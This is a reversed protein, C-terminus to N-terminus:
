KSYWKAARSGRDSCPDAVDAIGLLQLFWRRHALDRGRGAVPDSDGRVVRCLDAAGEVTGIYDTHHIVGKTVASTDVVDVLGPTDAIAFNDALHSNYWTSLDGARPLGHERWSASLAQDRTSAYVTVPIGLNPVQAIAKARDMDASAMILRQVEASREAPAMRELAALAIRNGMSHAIITVRHHNAVLDSLLRGAQEDAWDANTEDWWYERTRGYSPWTLVIVENIPEVATRIALGAKLAASNSNNYGHIFLLPQRDHGLRGELASRWQSAHYFKLVGDPAVSGYMAHSGRFNTVKPVGRSCSPMRETVFLLDRADPEGDIECYGVQQPIINAPPYACGVLSTGM